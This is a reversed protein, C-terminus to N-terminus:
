LARERQTPAEESSKGGYRYGTHEQQDPNANLRGVLFGKADGQNGDAQEDGGPPGAHALNKETRGHNQGLSGAEFKM